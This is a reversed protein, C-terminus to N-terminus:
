AAVASSVVHDRMQEGTLGLISAELVKQGITRLLLKDAEPTKAPPVRVVTHQGYTPIVGSDAMSVGKPDRGEEVEKIGQALLRRLMVVGRDTTALHELAHISIPRKM